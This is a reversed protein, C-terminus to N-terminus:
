VLETAKALKSMSNAQFFAINQPYDAM